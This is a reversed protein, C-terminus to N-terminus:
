APKAWRIERQETAFGLRRYLGAAGTPNASDVQLMGYELGSAAMERMVHCIVATAVGRKRWRRRVGIQGLWGDLKGTARADDPSHYSLCYGAIEDGDLAVYTLDPRFYPSGVYRAAWTAPTHPQSGWHDSFAENHALRLAEDRERSWREFRLGPPLDAAPIPESLPRRMEEYYRVPEYGAATFLARRDALREESWVEFFRPLDDQYAALRERAREESWRLIAAGLGQRRHEPHVVGFLNAARREVVEDRVFVGAACLLRGDETQAALSDTAPDIEPDALQQRVEEVSTVFHSADAVEAARVLAHLAAADDLGLARWRIGERPPPSAPSM